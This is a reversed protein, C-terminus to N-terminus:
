RDFLREAPGGRTGTAHQVERTSSRRVPLGAIPNLGRRSPDALFARAIELVLRVAANAPLLRIAPWLLGDVLLMDLAVVQDAVAAADPSAADDPSVPAAAPWPTSM